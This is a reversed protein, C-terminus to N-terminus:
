DEYSVLLAKVNDLSLYPPIISSLVTNIYVSYWLRIFQWIMKIFKKEQGPFTQDQEKNQKTVSSFIKFTITNQINRWGNALVSM